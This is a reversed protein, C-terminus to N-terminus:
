FLSDLDMDAVFAGMIFGGSNQQKRKIFEVKYFINIFLM